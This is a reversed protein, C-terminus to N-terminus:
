DGKNEDNLEFLAINDIGLKDKVLENWKELNKRHAGLQVEKQFRALQRDLDRLTSEYLAELGEISQLGTGSKQEMERRAIECLDFYLNIFCNTYPEEPLHYFTDFTDFITETLCYITDRIVNVDFFIQVDLNYKDTYSEFTPELPQDEDEKNIDKKLTVREKASWPFHNYEFWFRSKGFYNNRFNLLM